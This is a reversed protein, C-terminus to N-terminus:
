LKIQKLLIKSIYLLLVSKLFILDKDEAKM